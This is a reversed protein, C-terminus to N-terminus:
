LGHLDEDERGMAAVCSKREGEGDGVPQGGAVGDGDEVDERATEVCREGVGFEDVFVVAHRVDGGHAQAFVPKEDLAELLVERFGGFGIESHDIEVQFVRWDAEAAGDFIDAVPGDVGVIRGYFLDAFSEGALGLGSSHVSEYDGECEAFM